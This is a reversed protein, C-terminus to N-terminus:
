KVVRGKWVPGGFRMQWWLAQLAIRTMLLASLPMLLADTIRQRTSWATLGRITVGLLSLALPWAPWGVGGWGFLGAALWLWPGVFILLHFLTSGLLLFVSNGYGALINKAYGDRVSAWNHYMRTRILGAGDAMHLRCGAAKIRRALDIDEIITQRVAAHGGIQRYAARRFLLCQGNAAAANVYPTHHVLWVPLYAMIALAMLPAVLREGWTITIQTPWVTLLDAKRQAFLAVLASLAGPQWAVDADTFLLLEHQAAGALQHCAWNKGAWGAPLPEGALVRLRQDGDAAQQAMHATGDISQDDLVLVEFRPYEQNLLAQVTAAITAAENRAPVLISLAPPQESTSGIATHRTLRPFILTNIGAILLMGLLAATVFLALCTM